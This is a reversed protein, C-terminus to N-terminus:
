KKLIIGKTLTVEMLMGSCMAKVRIDSGEEYDKLASKQNPELTVMAVPDGEGGTLVVVPAGGEDEYIEDIVGQIEVVQGLYKAEASAEDSAFAAYLSEASLTEVVEKSKVNAQPINLFVVYALLLLVVVAIVVRIIKKM